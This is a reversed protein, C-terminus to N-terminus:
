NDGLVGGMSQARGQAGWTRGSAEFEGKLVRLERRLVSGCVEAYLRGLAACMLEGNGAVWEGWPREGCRGALM